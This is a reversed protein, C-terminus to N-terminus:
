RLQLVVGLAVLLAALALSLLTTAAGKITFRRREETHSRPEDRPLALLLLTVGGGFLGWALATSGDSSTAHGILLGLGIGAAAVLIFRAVVRKFSVRPDKEICRVVPIARGNKAARNYGPSTRLGRASAAICFM